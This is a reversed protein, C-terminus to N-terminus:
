WLRFWPRPRAEVEHRWQDQLAREAALTEVALGRASECAVLRLGREAYAVELDARTPAEPLRELVCPTTVAQPLTLRPPSVSPPPSAACSATMGLLALPAIRTWRFIPTM